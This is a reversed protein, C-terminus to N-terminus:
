GQCFTCVKQSKSIQAGNVSEVQAAEYSSSHVLPLVVAVILSVFVVFLASKQFEHMNKLINSCIFSLAAEPDFSYVTVSRIERNRECTIYGKM